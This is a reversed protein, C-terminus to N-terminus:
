VVEDDSSGEEENSAKQRLANLEVESSVESGSASRPLVGGGAIELPVCFQYFGELQTSQPLSM